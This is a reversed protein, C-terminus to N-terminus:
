SVPPSAPPTPALTGTRGGCTCCAARLQRSTRQSFVICMLIGTLRDMGVSCSRKLSMAFTFYLWTTSVWTHHGTSKSVLSVHSHAEICTAHLKKCSSWLYNRTCDLVVLTLPSSVGARAMSTLSWSCSASTTMPVFSPCRRRWRSRKHEKVRRSLWQPLHSRCCGPHSINVWESVWESM